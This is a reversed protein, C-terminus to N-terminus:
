TRRKEVQVIRLPPFTDFWYMASRVTGAGASGFAEAYARTHLFDSIVAQGGPKLVRVIERCAQARREKGPINHLCLNSLVVDFTNDEFKM